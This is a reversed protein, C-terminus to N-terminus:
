KYVTYTVLPKIDEFDWVYVRIETGEDVSINNIVATNNSKVDKCVATSKLTNGDYVAVIVAVSNIYEDSDWYIKNNGDTKTYGKYWDNLDAVIKYQGSELQEPVHEDDPVDIIFKDYAISFGEGTILKIIHEGETLELEIVKTEIPVAAPNWSGSTNIFTKGIKKSGVYVDVSPSATDSAKDGNAVATIIYEGSKTANIPITIYQAPTAVIRTDNKYSATTDTSDEAEFIITGNDDVAYISVDPYVLKFADFEASGGLNDFMVKFVNAGKNLYVLGFDDWPLPDNTWYDLREPISKSITNGNVVVTLKSQAGNSQLRAIKIGMLLRYYGSQPVDVTYRFWENSLMYAVAHGINNSYYDRNTYVDVFGYTDRIQFDDDYGQNTTDYWGINHGAYRDFDTEANVIIEKTLSLEKKLKIADLTIYEDCTIKFTHYGSSLELAGLETELETFVGNGVVASLPENDADVILNVNSNEDTSAGIAYFTYKGETPIFFKYEADLNEGAIGSSIRNSSTDYLTSFARTCNKDDSKEYFEAEVIGYDLYLNVDAESLTIYDCSYAGGNIILSIIKEGESLFMTAINENFGRKGETNALPIIRPTITVRGSNGSKGTLEDIRLKANVNTNSFGCVSINYFGSKEVNATIRVNGGDPITYVNGLNASINKEGVVPTGGNNYASTLAATKGNEAEYTSEFYINFYDYVATGNNASLKLTYETNKSLYFRGLRTGQVTTVLWSGATNIISNFTSADNVWFISNGLPLDGSAMIEFEYIGTKDPTFKWTIEPLNSRIYKGNSADSTEYTSSATENSGNYMIEVGNEECEFVQYVKKPVDASAHVCLVTSVLIIATLFLVIKKM